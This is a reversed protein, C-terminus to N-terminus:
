GQARIRRAVRDTQGEEKETVELMIEASQDEDEDEGRVVHLSRLEKTLAAHWM